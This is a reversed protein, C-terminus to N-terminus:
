DHKNLNHRASLKILEDMHTSHKKVDNAMEAILSHSEQIVQMAAYAKEYFEQTQEDRGQLVKILLTNEHELEGVKKRLENIAQDQSNVKNTLEGVTKELIKILRDEEKDVEARREKQKKDWLGFIAVAGVVLATAITMFAGFQLFFETM